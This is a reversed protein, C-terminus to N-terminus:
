EFDIANESNMFIPRGDPTNLPIIQKKGNRETLACLTPANRIQSGLHVELDVMVLKVEALVEKVKM